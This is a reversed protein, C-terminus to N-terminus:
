DKADSERGHPHAKDYVARLRGISVHTYIETTVLRAHGLLEQVTRLDAGRDLLHTAFSHRLGHPTLATQLGAARARDVVTQFVWRASLPRGTRNIWLSGPDTRKATQLLTRRAQLWATVAARAPGGLLALREKQGKGLVRVIGEELDLERLKMGACESVRCGTSYLTELIARDRIAQPTDDFTQDLLRDVEASTLFVPVRRPARPGKLSKCPDQEVIGREVAWAFLGRVSALKRQVSTAVLGQEELEVLYRRLDFRTAQPLTRGARALWGTFARVDGGYARLTADSKKRESALWHLYDDVVDTM